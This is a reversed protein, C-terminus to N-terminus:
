FEIQKLNLDLNKSKWNKSLVIKMLPHSDSNSWWADYQYASDPLKEGLIKEIEEFTIYVPKGNLKELYSGFKQYEIM